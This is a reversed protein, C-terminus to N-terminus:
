WAEPSFASQDFYNEFPDKKRPASAVEIGSMVAYRMADMLHDEKKVIKGHLDRRYNRYELFLPLCTSFIKLRGSSLLEWVKNVGSEVSNDAYELKLGLTRYIDILRRGDHQSAGASAPDIVGKIWSGRSTIASAHLPPEVKGGKYVSFIYSVSSEPDVALWVVATFNWGPDMGYCKKWHDPIPFDQVTIDSEAVPYIVGSGLMPLGKSRADLMHPSISAKLEEKVKESLHPADDWTANIIKKSM